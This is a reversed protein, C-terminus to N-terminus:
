DLSGGLAEIFVRALEKAGMMTAIELPYSEGSAVLDFTVM